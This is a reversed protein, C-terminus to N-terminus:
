GSILEPDAKLTARGAKMNLQTMVESVFQSKYGDQAAINFLSSLILGPVFEGVNKIGLEDAAVL